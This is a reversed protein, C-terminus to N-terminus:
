QQQKAAKNQKRAIHATIACAFVLVIEDRGMKFPWVYHIGGGCHVPWDSPSGPNPVMLMRAPMVAIVSSAALFHDPM